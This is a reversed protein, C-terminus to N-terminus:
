RQEVNHLVLQILMALLRRCRESQVITPPNQNKLHSWVERYGSNPFSLNIKLIELKLQDDSLTSLKQRVTQMLNRAMFKHVTNHHLKRGLVGDKAIKRM